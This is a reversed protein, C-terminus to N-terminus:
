NQLLNKKALRSFLRKITPYLILLISVWMLTASIPKKFFILPDGNSLVLSKVFNFEMDSGLILGLLINVMPFELLSLIYAIIGFAAMIWVDRTWNNASFAGAVCVAVILPNLFPISKQVLWVFVSVGALCMVVLMINGVYMSAIMSWAVDPHDKFLAPGPQLGLMLFGTLLVETTSSGPIGLGLLPVMAGASAGNNAAETVAIGEIAGKGFKEPNKSLRKELGYSIFAAITAGAGPLSGCIFGIIGGRMVSGKLKSIESLRPIVEKFSIKSVKQDYKEDYGEGAQKMIECIAYCGLIAITFEIGDLLWVQGFTFRPTGSMHDLGIMAFMVGIGLAIFNKALSGGSLASVFVFAFFLLAFREPAGFKLSWEALAPAFFTLVIVGITGSIFSAIIGTRIAYAGKGQKYLPHGEVAAFIAGSEGPINLLTGTISGSYMAGYYIGPLMAMAYQPNMGFVFPLLIATGASCGLGPLAGVFAGMTVGILCFVLHQWTLINSFGQLLYSLTEAM